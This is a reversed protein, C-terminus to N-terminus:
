PLTGTVTGSLEFEGTAKNDGVPNPAPVFHVSSLQLTYTKGTISTLELLGKDATWLRSELGVTETYSVYVGRQAVPDYGDEALFATGATADPVFQDVNLARGPMAQMDILGYNLQAHGMDDSSREVTCTGALPAAPAVLNASSKAFSAGCGGSTNIDPGFLLDSPSLDFPSFTADGVATDAAAVDATVTDIAPTADATDADPAPTSSSSSCAGLTPVCLVAAFRVLRLPAAYSM